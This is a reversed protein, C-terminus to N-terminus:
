QMTPNKKLVLLCDRYCIYLKYRYYTNCIQSLQRPLFIVLFALTGLLSLIVGSSFIFNFSNVLQLPQNFWTAQGSLPLDRPAGRTKSAVQKSFSSFHMWKQKKEM